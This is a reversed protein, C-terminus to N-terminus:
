SINRLIDLVYDKVLYPAMFAKEALMAEARLDEALDCFTDKGQLLIELSYVKGDETLSIKRKITPM